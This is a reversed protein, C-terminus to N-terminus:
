VANGKFSREAAGAKAPVSPYPKPSTSRHDPLPVLGAMDGIINVLESNM